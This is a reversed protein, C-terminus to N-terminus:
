HSEAAQSPELSALAQQAPRFSPNLRLVTALESRAETLRGAQLCSTAVNFHAEWYDPKIKVAREFHEIAENSRGTRQLATGLNNHASAYDPMTKLAAEFHQIAQEVRGSRMLLNGLNNHAEVYDPLLRLAEQYQQIAEDVKGLRALALGLDYHVDEDAPNMQVAETLVQVAEAPKGEALLRTGRNVRANFVPDQGSRTRGHAAPLGAPQATQAAPSAFSLDVPSKASGTWFKAGCWVAASLGLGLALITKWPLRRVAPATVPSPSLKRQPGGRQRSKSSM